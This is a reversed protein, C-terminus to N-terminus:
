FTKVNTKSRILKHFIFDSITKFYRMRPACIRIISNNDNRDPGLRYKEAGSAWLWYSFIAFSPTCIIAIVKNARKPSCWQQKKFPYRVVVYREITFVVIFAVSLFSSIHGLYFNLSCIATPTPYKNYHHLTVSILYVSDAVSIVALYRSSSQQRLHTLTFVLISLLNGILGGFILVLVAYYRAYYIWKYPSDTNFMSHNFTFNETTINLGSM